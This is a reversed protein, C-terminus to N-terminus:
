KVIRHAHHPNEKLLDFIDHRCLKLYEIVKGNFVENKISHDHMFKFIKEQAKEYDEYTEVMLEIEMINYRFDNGPSTIKDLDIHFDDIQFKQRHSVLTAIAILNDFNKLDLKALIQTEDEIEEYVDSKLHDSIPVKLEYKGNRKRLWIDNQILKFNEFDLYVDELIREGLKTANNKLFDLFQPTVLCKKEVEIM